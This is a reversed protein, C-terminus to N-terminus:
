TGPRVKAFTVFFSISNLLCIILTKVILSRIWFIIFFFMFILYCKAIFIYNNVASILWSLM